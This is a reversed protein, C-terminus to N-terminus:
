ARAQLEVVNSPPPAVISRLRAGWLELVERKEDLYDHHDYVGKIGPRAHAMVAERAEESVKLRSLNSRVTRRIDHNVWAPFEVADPDEGRRQALARLTRLMRADIRDKIKSSIWVPKEGFFTSFLYKGRNFRPLADLIAVMEGTLPVAHPRAKSNKGKMREAPIIWLKNALDFERWHADAVENLRLGTLALMQYAPGYPYRLRRAARELAFLEVDSLIRSGSKKEGIISTPKLNAFPNAALGYCRQDVAWGMLRKGTGLLNRAQAPATRKKVKILSLLHAETLDTIPLNGWVPIFQRRIDREIERGKREGVLKEAIFDEAVAAFSNKRKQQEALRQREEQEQPDIGKGILDLWHQAKRRADALSIAGYEGMARRTPNPSGPYRGLVVFSRQGSGMVRVRLGPVAVDRVDYPKGDPAPKLAKLIRDNLTVRRTGQMPGEM